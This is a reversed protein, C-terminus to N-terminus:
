WAASPQPIEQRSTEREGPKEAKFSKWLSRITGFQTVVGTLRLPDHGQELVAM